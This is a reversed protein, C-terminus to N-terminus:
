RLKETLSESEQRLGYLEVRLQMVEDKLKMNERQLLLKPTTADENFNIDPIKHNLTSRWKLYNKANFDQM